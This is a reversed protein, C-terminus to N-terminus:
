AKCFSWFAAAAQLIDSRSKGFFNLLEILIGRPPLNCHDHHEPGQSRWMEPARVREIWDGVVRKHSHSVADHNQSNEM